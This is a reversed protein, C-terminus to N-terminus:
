DNAHAKKAALLRSGARRADTSDSGSFPQTQALQYAEDSALFFTWMRFTQHHQTLWAKWYQAGPGDPPRNLGAYYVAVVWSYANEDSRELTFAVDYRQVQTPNDGLVASFFEGGAEDADRDLIFNYATQIWAHLRSSEGPDLDNWFEDSSLIWSIMRDDAKDNRLVTSWFRIEDASPARDLGMEFLPVINYDVINETSMDIQDTFTARPLGNGLATAWFQLGGPDPCRNLIQLYIFRVFRQNAGDQPCAPAEAPAAQVAAASPALLAGALGSGSIAVAVACGLSALSSRLRRRKRGGFETMHTKEKTQPPQDAKRTVLVGRVVGGGM